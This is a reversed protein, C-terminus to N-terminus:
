GTASTSCKIMSGPDFTCNSTVEQASQVPHRHASLLLLVTQMSQVASGLDHEAEEAAMARFM